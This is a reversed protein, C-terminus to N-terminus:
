LLITLYNLHQLDLKATLFIIKLIADFNFKSEKL